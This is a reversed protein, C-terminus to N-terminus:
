QTMGGTETLYKMAANMELLCLEKVADNGILDYAEELPLNIRKPLVDGLELYRRTYYYCTALVRAKHVLCIGTHRKNATGFLEYNLGSCWGCGSAVPCSLCKGPSQSSMTIADLSAKVAQQHETKYLGERCDGLCINAAKEQGISVPAYRICPYAKGDPAFALMNGTGGCFNKDDGNSRGIMNDLMTIVVDKHNDIIWDALKKVEYFLLRADEATYTPEYAYNCAIKECGEEIMMKVSNALYPFSGPVFTM